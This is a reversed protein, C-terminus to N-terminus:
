INKKLDFNAKYSVKIAEEWNPSSHQEYLCTIWSHFFKVEKGLGVKRLDGLYSDDEVFKLCDITCKIGIVIDEKAM